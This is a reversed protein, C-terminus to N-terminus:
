SREQHDDLFETQRYTKSGNQKSKTTKHVGYFKLLPRKKGYGEQLGYIPGHKAANVWSVQPVKTPRTPSLCRTAWSLSFQWACCARTTTLNEWQGKHKKTLLFILPVFTHAVPRCTSVNHCLKVRNSVIHCSKACNKPKMLRKLFM